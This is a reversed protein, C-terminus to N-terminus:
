VSELRAGEVVRGGRRSTAFSPLASGFLTAAIYGDHM